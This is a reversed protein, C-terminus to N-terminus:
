SAISMYVTRVALGILVSGIIWITKSMSKKWMTLQILEIAMENMKKEAADIKMSCSNLEKSNNEITSLRAYLGKDPTYMATKIEEVSEQVKDQSTKIQEVDYLLKTFGGNFVESNNVRKNLSELLEVVNEISQSEKPNSM